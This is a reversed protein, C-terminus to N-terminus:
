LGYKSKTSDYNQTIEAQSLVRNYLRVVGLSGQFATSTSFKTTDSAGFILHWGTRGLGGTYPPDWTITTDSSKVKNVYAYATNSGNYVRVFQYWNNLPTTGGGVRTTATGDWLMANSITFPGVNYFEAGTTHYGGSISAIGTDSFIQCVATPRIWIELTHQWGSYLTALSGTILNQASGGTFTFANNNLALSGTITANVGSPSLDFLTSGSGPYSSLNSPDYYLELGSAIHQLIAAVNRRGFSFSKGFSSLM